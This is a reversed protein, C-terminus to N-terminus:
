KKRGNDSGKLKDFVREKEWDKEDDFVPLMAYIEDIWCKMQYIQKKYHAATGGDNFGSQCEQVLMGIHDKLIENPDRSDRDLWEYDFDDDLWDTTHDDGM